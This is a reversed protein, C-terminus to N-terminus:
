HEYFDIHFWCALLLQIFKYIELLCVCVRMNKKARVKSSSFSHFLHAFFNNPFYLLLWEMRNEHDTIQQNHDRLTISSSYCAHFEKSNKQHQNYSTLGGNIM